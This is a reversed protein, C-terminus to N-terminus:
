GQQKARPRVLHRSVREAAFRAGYAFRLLPGFASAAAPGVFYLGPVSSEFNASLAPKHDEMHVRSLLGPSLLSLRRLDINFGTAAVIHDTEIVLNEGNLRTAHLQVRGGGMEARALIAGTHFQMRGVVQDRVFWCPAPGLHDRVFAHRMHEPLKHIILPAKCSVMSRWGPGLGTRPWFVMEKISRTGQTPPSHFNIVDGRALLSVSANSQLLAAACDLASAGSGIVTVDKGAYRDLDSCKWSHSVMGDPLGLLAAPTNTYAGLGTALVVRRAEVREGDDLEFRFIDANQELNVVQRDELERVYRNQFELGYNIFTEASVPLGVDAYPIEHDACYRSLPFAGGPAYIDSAFGDSKLRMGKPTHENWSRMATGFIRFPVLKEKLYSAIALGYPGAGVIIVNSVSM